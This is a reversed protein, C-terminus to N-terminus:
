LQKSKNDSLVIYLFLPKSMNYVFTNSYYITVCWCLLKEGWSVNNNNDQATKDCYIFVIFSLWSCIDYSLCSKRKNNIAKDVKDFGNKGKM